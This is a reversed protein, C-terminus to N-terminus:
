NGDDEGIIPKYGNQVEHIAQQIDAVLEKKDLKHEQRNFNGSKITADDYGDALNVVNNRKNHEDMARQSGIVSGDVPSVFADFKGKVFGKPPTFIGKRTRGGCAPCDPTILADAIAARYELVGRCEPCYAEYLPM